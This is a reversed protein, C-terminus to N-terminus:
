LGAIAAAAFLDAANFGVDRRSQRYFLWAATGYIAVLMYEFKVKFPTLGQGPVFLVPVLDPRFLVVGYVLAVYALVVGMLAHRMYPSKLPQWPRLAIVLLGVAVLLRAPLWFSIAKGPGSPTVVEPMGAYSLTHGFDLLATGFLVAGLLAINGPRDESYAHWAIGFGLMAVIISAVELTTHLTLFHKVPLGADLVGAWLLSSLLAMAVVGTLAM